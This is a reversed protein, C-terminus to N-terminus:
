RKCREEHSPLSDWDEPLTTSRLSADTVKPGVATAYFLPSINGHDQGNMHSHPCTWPNAGAALLYRLVDVQGLTTSIFLPTAGDVREAELEAGGEVLLRCSEVSRCSQEPSFSRARRM